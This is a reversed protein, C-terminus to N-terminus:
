EEECCCNHVYEGCEPCVEWDDPFQHCTPCEHEGQEDASERYYTHCIRCYSM